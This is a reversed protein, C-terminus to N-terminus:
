SKINNNMDNVSNYYAVEIEPLYEKSLTSSLKTVIIEKIVKKDINLKFMMSMIRLIMKYKTINSVENEEEIENLDQNYWDKWFLEDNWCKILKMTDKYKKSLEEYVFHQKGEIVTYYRFCALTLLHGIINENSTINNLSTKIIKTIESLNANNLEKKNDDELLGGQVILNSLFDRNYHTKMLQSVDVLKFRRNKVEANCLNTFWETISKIDENQGSPLLESSSLSKKRLALTRKPPLGLFENSNETFQNSPFYRRYNDIITDFSYLRNNEIIYFPRKSKSQKEIKKSIEQHIYTQIKGKNISSIFPIKLFYPSILFTNISSKITKDFSFLTSDKKSNNGSNSNNLSNRTITQIQSSGITRLNLHFDNNENGVGTKSKKTPSRSKSRKLKLQKKEAYKFVMKNFYSTDVMSNDYTTGYISNNMKKYRKKSKKTLEKENTLLQNFMQTQLLEKYFAKDEKKKGDIFCESNFLTMENELFFLYAKYEGIMIAMMNCFLEKLKEKMENINTLKKIEKLNNTLHRVIKEPLEPINLAKHLKKKADNKKKKPDLSIVNNKINIYVITDQENSTDIIDNNMSYQLLFEDIGMIFPIISQLFTVTSLSLVPIYTNVWTFPYLWNIFTHSLNSLLHYNNDIFILKQELLILTSIEIINEISLYAFINIDFTNLENPSFPNPITIPSITNPIYFIIKQKENPIPVENVLHNILCNSEKINSMALLTHLCKSMQSIYPYRSVLTMCEPILVNECDIFSSIIGLQKQFKEDEQKSLTLNMNQFKTFEKLPNIKYKKDFEEISILRYYHMSVIYYIDGKENRIINLFSEYPKPYYDENSKFCLKIGLPFCLNATLETIEVQYKKKKNQYYQLISPKFSMLMSCEEHQCCSPYDESQKIFETNNESLGTIFVCQCFTDYEIENYNMKSLYDSSYVDNSSNINSITINSELIEFSPIISIDSNINNSANTANTSSETIAFVAREKGKQSKPSNIDDDNNKKKIPSGIVKQFFSTFTAKKSPSPSNVIDYNFPKKDDNNNENHTIGVFKNCNDFENHNFKM